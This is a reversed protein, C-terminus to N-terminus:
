CGIHFDVCPKGNHTRFEFWAFNMLLQEDTLEDALVTYYGNNHSIMVYYVNRIKAMVDLIRNM